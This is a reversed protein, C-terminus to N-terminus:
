SGTLGKEALVKFEDWTLKEGRKMKRLAKEELEQILEMERRVKKKQEESKSKSRLLRTQAFLLECQEDLKQVLKRNEIYKQHNENAETKLKPINVGEEILMQHVQRGQEALLAIQSHFEKEETRLNRLQQQLTKIESWMAQTQEYSALRKELEAIQEVVLKEEPMTLSNTQIRWDLNEIEKEVALIAKAPVQKVSAVKQKFEIVRNLKEKRDSILQDRIVKLDKVKRNIEDRHTKLSVIEARLQEIQRRIHDRREMWLKAESELKSRQEKLPVLERDLEKIKEEIAKADEPM